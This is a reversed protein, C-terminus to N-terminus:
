EKKSSAANWIYRTQVYGAKAVFENVSEPGRSGYPYPEPQLRGADIDHLLPTFIAWAARLEDRRVFHQQDGRICDLILREYADPIHVDKYRHMYSLDLESMECQMDLGPKKVVMKAYIAEGPQFRMVFENRMHNLDGFIPSACPKLQMRVVVSRDDLAKGAKLIFPVGMWRDNNISLKCAAYTPCKSNPPVTPDDRYGPKGNAAVYQGLICDEPTLPPIARLLKSKEDRIDDPHLSVPAEMALLALVQILHNQIVDRIIGYKDFYGGRGETGFPEKFTIQVNDVYHRNWWSSFLANSFRMVLLNQTLEKGLYHDIRYLTEESFLKGLIGALEESSELDRGFPKELIVRVWSRPDHAALDTVHAKLQTCADPYVLPPLALYFLRGVAPPSKGNFQQEWTNLASQLAVYGAGDNYEGRVYTCLALFDEVKDGKLYEKLKARFEAIQM